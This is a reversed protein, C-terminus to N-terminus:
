RRAAPWRDSGSDRAPVLSVRKLEFKAFASLKEAPPPNQVTSPKIYRTACPAIFLVALVIFGLRVTDFRVKPSTPFPYDRNERGSCHKM